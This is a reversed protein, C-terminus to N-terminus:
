HASDSQHREDLTTVILGGVVIEDNLATEERGLRWFDHCPGEEGKLTLSPPMTMRIAVREATITGTPMPSPEVRWPNRRKIEAGGYLASLGLVALLGDVPRQRDAIKVSERHIQTQHQIQGPLGGSRNDAHCQVVQNRITPTGTLIHAFSCVVLSELGNKRPRGGAAVFHHRHEGLSGLTTQFHDFYKGWCLDALRGVSFRPGSLPKTWNQIGRM